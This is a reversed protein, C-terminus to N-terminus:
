KELVEKAGFDISMATSGDCGQGDVRSDRRKASAIFVVQFSIAGTGVLWSNRSTTSLLVWRRRGVCIRDPKLILLIRPSILMIYAAPDRSISFLM